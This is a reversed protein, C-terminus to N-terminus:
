SYFLSFRYAKVLRTTVSIGQGAMMGEMHVLVVRKPATAIEFSTDWRAVSMAFEEKIQMESFAAQWV